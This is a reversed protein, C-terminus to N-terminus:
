IYGRAVMEALQKQVAALQAEAQNKGIEAQTAREAEVQLKEEAADRETEAKEVAVQALRNEEVLSGRETESLAAWAIRSAKTAEMLHGLGQGVSSFRLERLEPSAYWDMDVPRPARKRNVQARPNACYLMVHYGCKYSLQAALKRLTTMRSRANETLRADDEADLGYPRCHDRLWGELDELNEPSNGLFRGIERPITDKNAESQFGAIKRRKAEKLGGVPDALSPHDIAV